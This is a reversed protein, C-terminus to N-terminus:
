QNLFRGRAEGWVDMDLDERPVWGEQSDAVTALFKVEADLQRIFHSGSVDSFVPTGGMLHGVLALRAAAHRSADVGAPWGGSRTWAAKLQCGAAELARARRQLLLRAAEQSSLRDNLARAEPHDAGRQQVAALHEGRLVDLDQRMTSLRREMTELHAKIDGGLGAVSQCGFLKEGEVNAALGGAALRHLGREHTSLAFQRVGVNALVKCRQGADGRVDLECPLVRGLLQLNEFQQQLQPLESPDLLAICFLDLAVVRGALAQQCKEPDAVLAAVAIERAMSVCVGTRLRQAVDRARATSSRVGVYEYDASWQGTIGCERAFQPAISLDDLLARLENDPLRRLAMGDLERTDVATHRLGSFLRQGTSDILSTHALNPVHALRERLSRGRDGPPPYGNAFRTGLAQGPVVRSQVDVTAGEGTPLPVHVLRATEFWPLAFQLHKGADTVRRRASELLEADVAGLGGIKALFSFYTQLNVQKVPIEDVCRASLSALERWEAESMLGLRSRKCLADTEVELALEAIASLVQRLNEPLDKRNQLADLQRFATWRDVNGLPSLWPLDAVDVGSGSRPRAPGRARPLALTAGAGAVDSGTDALSDGTDALLAGTDALTILSDVLASGTVAACRGIGAGGAGLAPILREEPAQSVQRSALEGRQPRHTGHEPPRNGGVAATPELAPRDM